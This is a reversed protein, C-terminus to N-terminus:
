LHAMVAGLVSTRTLDMVTNAATIANNATDTVMWIIDLTVTAAIRPVTSIPALDAPTACTKLEVTAPQVVTTVTIATIVTGGNALVVAEVKFQQGLPILTAYM